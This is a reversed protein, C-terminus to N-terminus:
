VNKQTKTPPSPKTQLPETKWLPVGTMKKVESNIRGGTTGVLKKMWYTFTKVHEKDVPQSLKGRHAILGRIEIIKDLRECIVEAKVEDFTWSSTIDDIGIAKRFFDRTQASKPTNFNRNRTESFRSLRQQILSRWGDGALGWVALENVDEKIEKAVLKKLEKPLKTPDTVHKIIHEIAESAIDEIYAEWYTVLLVIASRLVVDAGDPLPDKDLRYLEEVAEYYDILQHIDDLNQDYNKRANSPM